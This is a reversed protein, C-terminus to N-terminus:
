KSICIHRVIGETINMQSSIVNPVKENSEFTMLVYFGENKFNIPYAYKRVGWKELSLVEGNNSKVLDEFKSVLKEKNEEAVANDIIYLLEYKM